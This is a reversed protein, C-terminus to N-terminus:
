RSRGEYTKPYPRRVRFLCYHLFQEIFWVLWISYM